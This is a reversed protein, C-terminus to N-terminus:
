LADHDNVDDVFQVLSSQSTSLDVMLPTDRGQPAIVRRGFPASLGRFTVTEGSACHIPGVVLWM